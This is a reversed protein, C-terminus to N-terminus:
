LVVTNARDRQRLRLLGSPASPGSPGTMGAFTM